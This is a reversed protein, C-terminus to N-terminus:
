LACSLDSIASSQSAETKPEAVSKGRISAVFYEVSYLYATKVARYASLRCLIFHTGAQSCLM